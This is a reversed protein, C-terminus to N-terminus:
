PFKESMLEKEDRRLEDRQEVTQTIGKAVGRVEERLTQTEDIRVYVNRLRRSEIERKKALNSCTERVRPVKRLLALRQLNAYKRM